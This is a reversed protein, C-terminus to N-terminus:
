RESQKLAAGMVRLVEARRRAPRSGRVMPLGVMVDWAARVAARLAEVQAWTPADSAAPTSKACLAAELREVEEGVGYGKRPYAAVLQRAAVIVASPVPIPAEPTKAPADPVIGFYDCCARWALRESKFPGRPGDHAAADHWYWGVGGASTAPRGHYAVAFQPRWIHGPWARAADRYQALTYQKRKIKPM